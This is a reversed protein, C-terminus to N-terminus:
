PSPQYASTLVPAAAGLAKPVQLAGHSLQMNPQVITPGLVAPEGQLVFQAQPAQNDGLSM